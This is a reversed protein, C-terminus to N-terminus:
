SSVKQSIKRMSVLVESMSPMRRPSGAIFVVSLAGILLIEFM